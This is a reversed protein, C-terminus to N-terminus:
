PILHSTAPQHLMALFKVAADFEQKRRARREMAEEDRGWREAQWDEDVHATLWAREPELFNREMALAVLASGTLTTLNHLACLHMADFQHLYRRVTGLAEPSQQKHVIGQVALLRVGLMEEAWSLVPDWFEGQRSVLSEPEAARYCVLDAGVYELLEEIIRTEHGEVRDIATNALKTLPMQRPDVREGQAAWEAAVAGALGATPLLLDRKLPTELPRGDLAIGHPGEGVVEVNEYFRKRFRATM